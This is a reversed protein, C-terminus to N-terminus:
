AGFLFMQLLVSRYFRAWKSKQFYSHDIDEEEDYHAPTVRSEEVVKIADAEFARQEAM